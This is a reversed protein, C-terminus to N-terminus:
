DYRLVHLAPVLLLPRPMSFCSRIKRPCSRAYAATVPIPVVREDIVASVRQMDLVQLLLDRSCHCLLAPGSGSASGLHNKREEREVVSSIVQVRRWVQLEAPLLPLAPM